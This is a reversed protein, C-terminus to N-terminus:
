PQLIPSLWRTAEALTWAKRRAYDKLQDQGIIGVGFYRSAAHGFYMGSVASAPWMACSETLTIGVHREVDLLKWLTRKETHDPQAPYGPAPRIGAYREKILAEIALDEDPAYGWLERRVKIHLSEAFSEALRDAVSKLLIARYDDHDAEAAAVLEALGEGTQVAFTGLWDPGQEATRVFDALAMTPRDRGHQQRITHFTAAVESRNADSFVVVDDGRREAAYLGVVGSAKVSAGAALEDLLARAEEVLERAQKGQRADDLIRPYTGRLGWAHFFPTWDITEFLDELEPEVVTVGLVKPEHAPESFDVVLGRERAEALTRGPGKNGGARRVRVAEQAARTDAVFPERLVDSLLSSAVGVARSADAVHVVPGDYAPAIRLATHAISTTAGGILLPTTFGQRKMESAVHVMEDLSPTILGSLGILDADQERATDLITQANVMVGLDVVDFNNCQLVVGVINKGIDHVDGKVTALVIRGKTE